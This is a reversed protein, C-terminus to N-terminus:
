RWGSSSEPSKEQRLSVRPEPHLGVKEPRSLAPRLRRSGGELLLVRAQVDVPHFRTSSPQLGRESWCVDGADASFCCRLPVGLMRPHIEAWPLAPLLRDPSYLAPRRLAHPLSSSETMVCPRILRPPLPPKNGPFGPVRNTATAVGPTPPHITCPYISSRLPPPSVLANSLNPLFHSSFSSLGSQSPKSM